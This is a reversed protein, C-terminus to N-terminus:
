LKNKNVQVENLQEEHRLRQLNDYFMGFVLLVALGVGIALLLLPNSFLLWIAGLFLGWALITLITEGCRDWIDLLTEVAARTYINM